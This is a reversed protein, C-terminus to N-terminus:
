STPDQRTPNFADALLSLDADVGLQHLKAADGSILAQREAYEIDYGHLASDPHHRLQERFEADREARRLVEEVTQASM